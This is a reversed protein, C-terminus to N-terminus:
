IKGLFMLLRVALESSLARRWRKGYFAKKMADPFHYREHTFWRAMKCDRDNLERGFLRDFEQCTTRIDSNGRFTNKFWKWRNKLSMGSISTDLRRHASAIRPDYFTKGFKVALLCAWWDHSTIHSIEAKLMLERLPRNLVISFGQFVCDTLTKQFTIPYPPPGIEGTKESMDANYLAYASHFLLPSSGDQQEMWQLAWEMKHPEWVDDQDSFAWYDGEEAAALLMMFSQGFGANEGRLLTLKGAAEYPALVHLTGDASGDDRVYLHVPVTQALISDIQEKIYAEGNYASLLVNVPKTM